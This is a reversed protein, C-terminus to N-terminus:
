DLNSTQICNNRMREILKIDSNPTNTIENEGFLNNSLIDYGEAISKKEDEDLSIADKCLLYYLFGRQVVRRGFMISSMVLVYISQTSLKSINSISSVINDIVKMNEWSQEVGSGLALQSERLLRNIYNAALWCKVLDDQFVYKDSNNENIVNLIGSQSSLTKLFYEVNNQPIDFSVGRIKLNDHENFFYQRIESDDASTKNGFVFSCALYGLLLKINDTSIDYDHKDWRLSIIANVASELIDCLHHERKSELFTVLMFPNTVLSRLYKNKDLTDCIEKAMESPLMLSTIDKVNQISLSSIKILDCKRLLAKKRIFRSTIVIRSNKYQSLLENIAKYYYEFKETDVEDISDILILLSGTEDAENVMDMFGEIDYGEALEIISSYEMKNAKDSDIYVPFYDSSVKGFLSEQITNYLEEKENVAESIVSSENLIQENVLNCLLLVHLLTTKGFGSGAVVLYSFNDKNFPRNIPKDNKSVITPTVYFDILDRVGGTAVHDRLEGTYHNQWITEYYKIKDIDSCSFERVNESLYYGLKSKNRIYKKGILKGTEGVVKKFTETRDESWGEGPWLISGISEYTLTKDQIHKSAKMLERLFLWCQHRLHHETDCIYCVNEKEEDITIREDLVWRM